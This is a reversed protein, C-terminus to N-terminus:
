NLKLSDALFSKTREFSDKTAAESYRYTVTGLRGPKSFGNLSKCDWCHTEDQYVHIQIPKGTTKVPTLLEQCDSAPSEIDAGGLLLLHPKEVDKQVVDLLIKEPGMSPIRCPPYFSVYADFGRNQSFEQRVAKSNNFLAIFAGQSFGVFAVKEPSVYPLKRIHSAAQYFDKVVRGLTVGNQPGQCLQQAGRPGMFDLLLVVYGSQQFDKAWQLMSWNAIQPNSKSFVLGGCQHGLVIAPFPGEGNPKLLMMQPYNAEAILTTEVPLSLDNASTSQNFLSRPTIQAHVSYALTSIFFIIINLKINSFMKSYELTRLANTVFVVRLM